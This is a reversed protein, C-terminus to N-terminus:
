LLPTTHIKWFTLILLFDGSIEGIISVNKSDAHILSFTCVSGTCHLPWFEKRALEGYCTWLLDAVYVVLGYCTQLLNAARPLQPSVHLPIQDCANRNWSGLYSLLWFGCCYCYNWGNQLMFSYSYASCTVLSMPSEDSGAPTYGHIQQSNPPPAAFSPTNGSTTKSYLKLSHTPVTKRGARCMIPLKPSSDKWAIVQVSVSLEFCVLSFVSFVFFLCVPGLYSCCVCFWTHYGSVRPSHEVWRFWTKLSVCYNCETIAAPRWFNRVTWIQNNNSFM